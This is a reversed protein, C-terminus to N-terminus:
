QRILDIDINISIGSQFNEEERNVLTQYDENDMTEFLNRQDDIHLKLQNNRHIDSVVSRFRSHTNGLIKLVAVAANVPNLLVMPCIESPMSISSYIDYMSEHKLPPCSIVPKAVNGDILASLANSKGAITVYVNVHDNAEYLRLMELLIVPSKHASCIRITAGVDYRKLYRAIRNAHPIDSSSGIIIPVIHM